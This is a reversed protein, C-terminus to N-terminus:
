PRVPKVGTDPAGAKSAVTKSAVAGSKPKPAPATVKPKPATAKPGPRPSTRTPGGNGGGNGGGGPRPKAAAEALEGSQRWRRWFLFAAAAILLLLLILPWPITLMTATQEISSLKPDIDGIYAGPAVTIRVTSTFSPLVGHVQTTVRMSNGPLLEKIPAISASPVSGGFLSTVRVSQTGTLRINGSNTVLYSVTASGDGFPNLTNHYVVSIHSVTLQSHLAGPVRVEVRSGVRSEIAIQNGKADYAMTTLSVMIGGTHDGPAANAPVKLTFPMIATSKAPITIFEQNFTIWLGLDTPKTTSPLVTFGGDATNYADTAYVHLQLPAASYNAIAVYDVKVSGGTAEYAFSDRNDVGKATAPQIGFTATSSSPAGSGSSGSPAQRLVSQSLASQAVASQPPAAAAVAAGTLLTGSMAVAAMLALLSRFRAM